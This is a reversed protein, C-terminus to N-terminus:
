EPPSDAASTLKYVGATFTVGGYEDSTLVQTPALGALYNYASTLDAEGQASAGDASHMTGNDIGPPFGTIATGPSVGIDGTIVTNGTNTVTTGALIAFNAASNLISGADANCPVILSCLFVLWCVLKM